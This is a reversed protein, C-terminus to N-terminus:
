PIGLELLQQNPTICLVRLTKMHIDAQLDSSSAPRIM